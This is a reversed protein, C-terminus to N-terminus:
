TAAPSMVVSDIAQRLMDSGFPKTIYGYGASVLDEKRASNGSAFLIKTGDLKLTKGLELTTQGGSLNIDLVALDFQENAVYELAAPLSHLVVVKAFGFSELEYAVDLAILPEDEVYLVNLQSWDM